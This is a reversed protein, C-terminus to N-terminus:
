NFLEEVVSKVDGGDAKGKLETMLAGMLKGMQSKDTVGLEEKKAEAIKKIKEVDMMQPLYGDLIKLEEAEKEALDDRNGKKFEEISGKRQKVQKRIVVLAGEDDIKEDPKKGSAILENTFGAILGRLVLVRLSEKAKMAEKLEDKIQEQINAM